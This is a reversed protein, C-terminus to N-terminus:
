LNKNIFERHETTKLHRIIDSANKGGVRKITRIADEQVGIDEHFLAINQLYPLAKKLKLKGIAGFARYLDYVNRGNLMEILEDFSYDSANDQGESMAIESKFNNPADQFNISTIDARM